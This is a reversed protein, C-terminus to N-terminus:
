KPLGGIFVSDVIHVDEAADQFFLEELSEGQALGQDSLDIGVVVARFGLQM